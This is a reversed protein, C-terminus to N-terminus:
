FRSGEILWNTPKRGNYVFCFNCQVIWRTGLIPVQRLRQISTELLWFRHDPFQRIQASVSHLIDGMVINCFFPVFTTVLHLVENEVARM